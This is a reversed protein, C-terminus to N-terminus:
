LKQAEFLMLVTAIAVNLSEAGGQMPIAVLISCAALAEESLGKGESGMVLLTPSKYSRRYSEKAKMQTGVSEGPWERLLDFFPKQELRVLPM